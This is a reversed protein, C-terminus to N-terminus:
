GWYLESLACKTTDQLCFLRVPPGRLHSSVRRSQRTTTPHRVVHAQTYHRLCKRRFPHPLNKALRALLTRPLTSQRRMNHHIVHDSSAVRALETITAPTLIAREGVANLGMVGGVTVAAGVDAGLGLVLIGSSRDPEEIYYSGAEGWAGAEFFPMLPVSWAPGTAPFPLSVEELGQIAEASFATTTALILAFSIVVIRPLKM